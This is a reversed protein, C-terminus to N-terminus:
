KQTAVLENLTQLYGQNVRWRFVCHDCSGGDHSTNNYGLTKPSCLADDVIVNGTDPDRNLHENSDQPSGALVTGINDTYCSGIYGAIDSEHGKLKSANVLPDYTPDTDVIKQEAPTWGWEVQSYHTKDTSPASAAIANSFISSFLLKLNSMLTIPLRIFSGFVQRPKSLSDHINFIENSAFSDPNSIAFYRQ